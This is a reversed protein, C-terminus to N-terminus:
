MITPPPVAPQGNAAVREWFEETRRRSRPPEGYPFSLMVSKAAKPAARDSREGEEGEWRKTEM